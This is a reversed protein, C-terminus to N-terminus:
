ARAISIRAFARNGVDESGPKPENRVGATCAQSGTDQLPNRSRRGAHFLPRPRPSRADPPPESLGGPAAYGGRARTGAGGDKGATRGSRTGRIFGMLESLRAQDAPNAAYKRGSNVYKAAEENHGLRYNAYALGYCYRFAQGTTVKTQKLLDVAAQYSGDNILALGLQYKADHWDPRLELARRLLATSGHELLAYDYYMQPDTSGLEAARAFHRLARDPAHERWELEALGAEPGWAQPYEKALEEYRRRAEDRKRALSLVGALLTGSEVGTVPAVDPAAAKKELQLDFVGAFFSAQRVYNELDKQVNALTKGFVEQIAAAAPRGELLMPLLVPARPRYEPALLLMHTLAWSEAYFIGARKRENYYPSDHGAITLTELDIWPGARLELIRSAMPDGVRIQKGVPKLTSYVDALGENFWIAIKADSHRLVVHTFEHVAMPYWEPGISGMVITDRNGDSAYYAAAFENMRYPVYEKESSFAVIRVPEDARSDKGKLARMFFNRVQEFYLIAERGKKEGSSTYLEFNASTLKVWQPARAAPAAGALLLVAGISRALWLGRM